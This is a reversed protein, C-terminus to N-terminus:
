VAPGAVFNKASQASTYFGGRVTDYAGAKGDPDLCPVLEKIIGGLNSITLSYLNFDVIGSYTHTGSTKWTHTWAHSGFIPYVMTNHTNGAVTMTVTPLDNVQLKKNIYDAVIHIIEGQPVSDVVGGGINSIRGTSSYHLGQQVTVPNSASSATYNEYIGFIYGGTSTGSFSNIKIKMDIIGTSSITKIPSSFLMYSSYTFNPNSIYEVETYGEPLRSPKKGAFVVAEGLYAKGIKEGGLYLGSIKQEGLKM